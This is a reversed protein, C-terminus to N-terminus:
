FIIASPTTQSGRCVAEGGLRARAAAEGSQFSLGCAEASCHETLPEHHTAAVPELPTQAPFGILDIM